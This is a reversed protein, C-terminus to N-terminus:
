LLESMVFNYNVKYRVDSIIPKTIQQCKRVSLEVFSEFLTQIFISTSKSSGDERDNLTSQTSTHMLGKM